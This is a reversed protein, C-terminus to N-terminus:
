VQLYTQISSENIHQVVTKLALERNSYVSQRPRDLIGYRMQYPVDLDPVQRGLENVGILSDFLKTLIKQPLQATPDNKPVLAYETHVPISDDDTSKEIKFSTDTGIVSSSLSVLM